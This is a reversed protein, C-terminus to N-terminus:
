WTYLLALIIHVISTATHSVM